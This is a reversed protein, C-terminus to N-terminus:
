SVRSIEADELNGCKQNGACITQHALRYLAEFSWCDGSCRHFEAICGSLHQYIRVKVDCSCGSTFARAGISFKKLNVKTFHAPVVSRFFMLIQNGLEVATLAEAPFFLSTADLQFFADRPVNPPVSGPIFCAPFSPRRGFPLSMMGHDGM